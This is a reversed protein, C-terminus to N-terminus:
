ALVIGSAEIDPAAGYHHQVDHEATRKPRAGLRSVPVVIGEESAPGLPLGLMGLAALDRLYVVWVDAGEILHHIRRGQPPHQDGHKM